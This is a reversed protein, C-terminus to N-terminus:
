LPINENFFKLAWKMRDVKTSHPILRKEVFRTWTANIQALVIEFLAKPAPNDGHMLRDHQRISEILLQIGYGLAQLEKEVYLISYRITDGLRNTISWGVLQNDRRLGVSTLLDITHEERFPWLLSNLGKEDKIKQLDKRDQGTLEKWQFFEMNAPLNFPLYLWKPDFHYSDFHCRLLYVSPIAWRHYVLIKEIAQTYPTGEEYEFGIAFVKEEKVLFNQMRAFLAKGIGQGRFGEEVFLLYLQGTRNSAFVEALVLGVLHGEIRAEFAVYHKNETDLSQLVSSASSSRLSQFFANQFFTIQDANAFPFAIKNLVFPMLRLGYIANLPLGM